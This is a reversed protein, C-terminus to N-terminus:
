FWSKSTGHTVRAGNDVVVGHQLVIAYLACKMDFEKTVNGVAREASAFLTETEGDCALALQEWIFQIWPQM